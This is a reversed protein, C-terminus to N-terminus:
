RVYIELKYKKADGLFQKKYRMKEKTLFTLRKNALKLDRKANKLIDKANTNKWREVFGESNCLMEVDGSSSTFFNITDEIKSKIDKIFGIENSLIKYKEYNDYIGLIRLRTEYEILCNMCLGTKRFFLQDNKSGWRIEQGCKCKQIGIAEKIITAVRNIQVPGGKRQEWEIGKNDKWKDGIKRKVYSKGTYGFVSVPRVGDVYDKIIKINSKM